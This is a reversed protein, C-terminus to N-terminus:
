PQREPVRHPPADPAHATLLRRALERLARGAFVWLVAGVFLGAFYLWREAPLLRDPAFGFVPATTHIVLQGLYMGWSAQGIWRLREVGPLRAVSRTLDLLLMTCPIDLAALLANKLLPDVHLQDRAISGLVWVVLAGISWSKPWAMRRRALVIGAVVPLFSLPAFIWESYFVFFGHVHASDLLLTRMLDIVGFTHAHCFVSLALSATLAVIWGTRAVAWHLLPFFLVLQVILTIFWGTGVQPVYALAHAILWPWALLRQRAFLCTVLWWAALAAWVPPLLRAYRGRVFTWTSRVFPEAGRRSWWLESAAGFLVLLVPVSRNVLHEYLATGDLTQAHILLVGLLALGKVADIEPYRPASIQLLASSAPQVISRAAPQSTTAPRSM